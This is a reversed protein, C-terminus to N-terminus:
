IPSGVGVGLADEGAVVHLIRLVEVCQKLLHPKPHRSFENEGGCTWRNRIISNRHKILDRYAAM